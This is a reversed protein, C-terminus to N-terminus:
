QFIRLNIDRLLNFMTLFIVQKGAINILKIHRDPDHMEKRKRGFEMAEYHLYASKVVNSVGKNNKRFLIWTEVRFIYECTQKM